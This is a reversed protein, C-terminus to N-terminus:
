LTLGEREGPQIETKLGWRSIFGGVKQPDPELGTLMAFGRLACLYPIAWWAIRVRVTVHIEAM